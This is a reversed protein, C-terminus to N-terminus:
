DYKKLVYGRVDDQVKVYKERHNREAYRSILPASTIQYDVVDYDLSIDNFIDQPNLDTESIYKLYTNLVNNPNTCVKFATTLRESGYQNNNVVINYLQLLDAITYQSNYASRTDDLEVMGRLIEDYALESQSNTNPELLDIDM